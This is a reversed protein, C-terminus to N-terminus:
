SGAQRAIKGADVGYCEALKSLTAMRPFGKGNELNSLTAMSVGTKEKVQALTLKAKTRAERLAAGTEVAGM